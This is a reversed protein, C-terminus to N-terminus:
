EMFSRSLITYRRLEKMRGVAEQSAGIASVHVTFSYAKIGDYRIRPVTGLTHMLVKIVELGQLAM